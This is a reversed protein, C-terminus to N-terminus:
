QMSHSPPRAPRRATSHYRGGIVAWLWEPAKDSRKPVSNQGLAGCGYSGARPIARQDSKGGGSAFECRRHVRDPPRALGIELTPNALRRLAPLM